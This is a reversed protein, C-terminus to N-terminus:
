QLSYAIDKFSKITETAAHDVEEFYPAAILWSLHYAITSEAGQNRNISFEEIGDNCGATEIDYLPLDLENFGLFWKFSTRLKEAIAESKNIRYISDYLIIMAMADIPQQAYMEYDEDMCLWKKNGILNLYQNTFCKSELFKRSEEAIKLFRENKTIEYARYLSAPLLGNDYTM